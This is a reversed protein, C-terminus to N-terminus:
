SKSGKKNRIIDVAYTILLTVITFALLIGIYQAKFNTATPVLIEKFLKISYTMPLYNSLWQFSKNITEVPFTGGAAALQLVLIILAILKGVDGFNRILCQIIATFAIGVLICSSYYLVPNEITFGLGLKLLIGVIIGQIAGLGIYVANQLFKNKYGSDLIGFRHKQDFYLVVYCMLAGVWLGICLFLPTFAVGYSDVEGYAQTEFEVPDEVFTALGDLKTLEENTSDIGEDIQTSFEEIGSILATSGAYASTTGEDLTTLASKITNSSSSLTALGTSLTNAGTVLSNSGSSLTSIGASLTQTGSQVKSLASRLSSIGTVITSLSSSSNSLKQTGTYLTSAGQKLSTGSSILKDAGTSLTSSASTLKTEGSKISEGAQTIKSIANSDIIAQAKQAIAQTTPDQITSLSAIASLLSSIQSNMSDVSDIYTNVNTIFTNTGSIYNKTGDAFTNTSDVYTSVGDNLNSAGEDLQTIANTLTQIGSEGKTSLEDIGSNIQLIASDLSNAGNELTEIGSNAQELGDTLTTSGEYASTIGDNFETYSDNLTSTGDSLEKIGDSLSNAGDLIQDAGDAIKELEDPVKNLSDVLTETVTSAIKSQLNIEIKKIASNIIQTALYNSAQNPSYTITAIQKDNTSASNLCETFNSPIIIMANYEGDQMGKNADDLSVSCINFTGDQELEALFESGQNENDDGTDLNVVAIKLGTLDAYPDWYSKLYFFSYIIPILLVVTIIVIELIKSKKM